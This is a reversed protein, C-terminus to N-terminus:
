SYTSPDKERLMVDSIIKNNENHADIFVRKTDIKSKEELIEPMREKASNNALFYITEDIKQKDIPPVITKIKLKVLQKGLVKNVARKSDFPNRSSPEQSETIQMKLQECVDTFVRQTIENILNQDNKFGHLCQQYIEQFWPREIQSNASSNDVSWENYSHSRYHVFSQQPRGNLQQWHIFDQFELPNILRM